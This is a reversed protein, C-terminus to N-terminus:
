HNSCAFGCFSCPATVMAFLTRGKLSQL